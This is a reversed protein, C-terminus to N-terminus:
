TWLAVGVGSVRPRAPAASHLRLCAGRERFRQPCPHPHPSFKFKNVAPLRGPSDTAHPLPFWRM